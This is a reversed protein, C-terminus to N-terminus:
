TGYGGALVLVYTYDNTFGGSFKKTIVYPKANQKLEKDYLLKNYNFEQREILAYQNYIQTSYSMLVDVHLFLTYMNQHDVVIDKVFYYRKFSSVYVYNCKNIVDAEAEIRLILNPISCGDLMYAEYSQITELKKNVERDDSTNLLLDIQM